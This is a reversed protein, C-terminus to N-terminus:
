LGALAPRPSPRLWDSAATDHSQGIPSETEACLGWSLTALGNTQVWHHSWDPSGPTESLVPTLDETPSVWQLSCLRAEALSLDTCTM